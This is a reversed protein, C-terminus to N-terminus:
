NFKAESKGSQFALFNAFKSQFTVEM